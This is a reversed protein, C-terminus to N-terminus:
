SPNEEEFGDGIEADIKLASGAANNLIDEIVEKSYIESNVALNRTKRITRQIVPEVTEENVYSANVALNFAKGIAKEFDERVEEEDVDLVSKDLIEGDEHVLKLDLGVELPEIGLQNLTEAIDETIEEGEEVAIASNTVKIEGEEVETDAGLQQIEGIMPGPNIGTPGEEIVVDNPAIEGGSAPASSKKEKILKYLKFPNSDSFIFAPQIAKNDELKEINEKGTKEIALNILSKRAMTIDADDKLEKKIEQLQKAPLSHMDLIGVAEHSEISKKLDEVLEEKDERSLKM